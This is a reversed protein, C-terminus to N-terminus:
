VKRSISLIFAVHVADIDINHTNVNLADTILNLSKEVKSFEKFGEEVKSLNRSRIVNYIDKFHQQFEKDCGKLPVLYQYIRYKGTVANRKAIAKAASEYDLVNCSYAAFDEDQDYPAGTTKINKIRSMLNAINEEKISIDDRGSEALIELLKPICGQAFSFIFDIYPWNSGTNQPVEGCLFKSPVKEVLLNNIERFDDNQQM